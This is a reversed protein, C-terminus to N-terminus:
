PHPVKIVTGLKLQNIKCEHSQWIHVLAPPRRYGLVLSHKM